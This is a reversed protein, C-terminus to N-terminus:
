AAVAFEGDNGCKIKPWTRSRGEASSRYPADARKAIIGELGLKCAERLMASGDSDIHDSYRLVSTDVGELLSALLRKREVLPLARLDRGELWMLDFLVYTPQQDTTKAGRKLWGQLAQFDSKGERDFVVIEGDFIANKVPLSRVAELVGPFRKSWDLRNRTFSRAVGRQVVCVIRYGDLKVEYVWDDTTPPDSVATALQPAVFPPMPGRAAAPRDASASRKARVGAGIEAMSRGSVVSTSAASVSDESAASEDRSKILLWQPKPSARGARGNARSTTADERRVLRWRGKLRSGDLHFSLTGKRLSTRPDGVPTWTGRDWIQVTGGGYQGKPITGEFNAYELPHDEVQVALRPTGPTLSPGKPVAWSKLVGDLELRFDFHLHSADHKQVVFSRTGKAEDAAAAAFPEPTAEPNRKRRYERLGAPPRAKKPRSTTRTPM